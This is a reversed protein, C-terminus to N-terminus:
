EERYLTRLNVISTDITEILFIGSMISLSISIIFISTMLLSSMEGGLNSGLRKLITSYVLFLSFVLSVPPSPYNDTILDPMLHSIDIVEENMSYLVPVFIIFLSIIIDDIHVGSLYTIQAFWVYM